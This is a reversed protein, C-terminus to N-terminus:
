KVRRHRGGDDDSFNSFSLTEGEFSKYEASFSLESPLLAPNFDMRGHNLKLGLMDEAAVKYYWGASGTYWTWGAEGEHAKSSYVDAPLVFPEAEYKAAEHNEPLLALMLAKGETKLGRKFCASALWVGAHTYQGGNERFGEGYSVIYGRYPEDPSYPPDFLKVIKNERDWLRNLSSRLATRVKRPDAYPSFAAFSQPLSDLRDEGGLPTGDSLYGRYYFSGSWARDAAKGLREATNRYYSADPESLETLLKSFNLACLSFFWGLWVSEGDVEDLGDNWDGSGFYPLGHPGLGRQICCNLARRVHNLVTDSGESIGPIEYRDREEDKLPMSVSFPVKEYCLSCGGTKLCYECLAWCLWLLDDSCRSRIGKDGDPHPHWWHMVDGEAYQHRCCDLIQRRAYDPSILLVNISDQLQDRFGFAGGSQYLSSRGELRCAIAQYPAWFNLYNDLAPCSSKVSFRGSIDTRRRRAERMASLAFDGSCLEKLENESLTGCVLVATKDAWLSIKLAAPSYDTKATFTGSCGIRFKIGSLYSEPNEFEIIDGAKRCKLSSPDPAGLVPQVAWDIQLAETGEIIYVRANIGAPVFASLRIKKDEIEKEWVATGPYFSVKCKYGDNAAFLSIKRSGSNIWLAESGSVGRFDDPAETIRMERANEFWMTGMGCDSVLCSFHGNTIIQQWVRSPLSDKVTFNFKGDSNTFEPISGRQRPASLVPFTLPYYERRARAPIFSARSEIIEKGGTPAFHIGGKIGILEQLSLSELRESIKRRFPRRYEGEESSLYILEAEIGCSTLLCFSNLLGEAESAQADCCIYPLDGSIGYQWLEKRPAANSLPTLLAPLMDMASQYEKENMGLRAAAAGAMSGKEQSQLLADAGKLVEDRSRGICLALRHSLKEGAKLSLSTKVTVEPDSLYPKIQGDESSFESPLDSSICLWIEQNGGRRIRRLLLKGDYLQSNLGLRWFAPHNKYDRYPALIPIFSFKLELSVNERAHIFSERLEGACEAGTVLSHRLIVPGKESEWACADEGLSWKDMGSPLLEEKDSFIKIGLAPSAEMPIEGSGYIRVDGWSASCSGSSSCLINYICNSLLCYKEKGGHGNNEWFGDFRRRPVEAPQALSRKIILGDAPLREQLLLRNAAMAPEQMFRRQLSLDCLANACSCISMGIHHAMYCRVKEGEDRRCRSPTFDLAEIFGFRGAAGFAKLRRLNKVAAQPEPVLALFSSYPSVIMDEDQGRKLALAGCGNAKYRYNMARDLAYFASESIGWPKGAFVQRKQVYLCFRASEYLLSGRYLPLFIEPMLYEFMTGTWSALGRYGDKQLQARSLRRWHKVPVDGKALSIYSLLLAESAMIDYWGGAGRHNETDYCIYFLNRENDYLFSFDMAAMLEDTRMLLKYEGWESLAQRLCVLCAYLNGSDVASVFAPHLPNLSRTDYWNYLQGRYKKLKEVSLLMKGINEAAQEKEIIGMDAAAVYSCLALGINTPSTRHALGVPPQEQFNDPPLFNDYETCFEEFYRYNERAANLIFERDARSLYQEKHAPLSLALATVPSLLWMLGASKGIIVPSFGLLLLGLAVPFWMARIHATLGNGLSESQASTQWQM